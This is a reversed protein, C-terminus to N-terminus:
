DDIINYHIVYFSGLDINYALIYCSQTIGNAPPQNYTQMTENYVLFYDFDRTEAEPLAPMTYRIENLLTDTWNEHLRIEQEFILKEESNEIKLRHEEYTSHDVTIASLNNPLDYQIVEELDQVFDVSTNVQFILRFSGFTLLTPLVLTTTVVGLLGIKNKLSLLRISWVLICISVPIFLYMIWSYRLANSVGFVEVDGCICMIAFAIVVFALSFLSLTVYINKKTLSTTNFMSLIREHIIYLKDTLLRKKLQSDHAILKRLGSQM